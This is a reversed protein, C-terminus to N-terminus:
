NQSRLHNSISNFANEIGTSVYDMSTIAALGIICAILAYEILNQGSEEKVFRIALTKTNGM